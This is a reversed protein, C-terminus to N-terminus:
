VVLKLVDARKMMHRYYTSQVGGAKRIRQIESALEDKSYHNIKKKPVMKQKEDAM